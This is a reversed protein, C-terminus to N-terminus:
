PRIFVKLVSDQKIMVTLSLVPNTKRSCSRLNTQEKSGVINYLNNLVTQTVTRNTPQLKVDRKLVFIAIDSVVSYCNANYV